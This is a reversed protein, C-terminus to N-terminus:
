AVGEPEHSADADLIEAMWVAVEAIRLANEPPANPSTAYYLLLRAADALGDPPISTM